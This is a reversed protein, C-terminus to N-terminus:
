FRLVPKGRSVSLCPTHECRACLIGHICAPPLTEGAPLDRVTCSASRRVQFASRAAPRGAGRRTDMLQMVSFCGASTYARMVAPRAAGSALAPSGM